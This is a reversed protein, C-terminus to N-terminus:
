FCCCYLIHLNCINTIEFIQLAINTVKPLTPVQDRAEGLLREGRRRLGRLFALSQRRHEGPREARPGASASVSWTAFSRARVPRAPRIATAAAVTPRPFQLMLFNSVTESPHTRIKNTKLTVLDPSNEGLPNNQATVRFNSFYGV